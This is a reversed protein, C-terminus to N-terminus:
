TPSIVTLRNAPDVDEVRVSVGFSVEPCFWAGHEETAWVNLFYLGCM